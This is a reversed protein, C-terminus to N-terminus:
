ITIPKATQDTQLKRILSLAQGCHVASHKLNRTWTPCCSTLGHALAVTFHHPQRMSKISMHCYSKTQKPHRRWRHLWGIMAGFDCCLRLAVLWLHHCRTMPMGSPVHLIVLLMLLVLMQLMQWCLTWSEGSKHSEGLLELVVRALDM